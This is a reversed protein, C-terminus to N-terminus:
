TNRRMQLASQIAQHITSYLHMQGAKGQQQKELMQNTPPFMNNTTSKEGYTSFIIHM